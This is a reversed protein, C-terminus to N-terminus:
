EFPLWGEKEVDPWITVPRGGTDKQYVMGTVNIIFTNRGTKGYEAPVACLGCQKSSDYLGNRDGVIDIYWYGMKVRAPSTAEAVARDILKLLEGDAEPGGVKHLDPFGIGDVPNAFVATGKRYFDETRFTRQAALYSCLKSM